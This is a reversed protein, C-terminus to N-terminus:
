VSRSVASGSVNQSPTATHCLISRGDPRDSGGCCSCCRDGSSHRSDQNLSLIGERLSSRDSVRHSEPFQCPPLSDRTSQGPGGSDARYSGRHDTDGTEVTSLRTGGRAHCSDSQTECVGAIRPFDPRRTGSRTHVTSTVTHHTTQLAESRERHRSLTARSGCPRRPPLWGDGEPEPQRDSTTQPSRRSVAPRHSTVSIVGTVSGCSVGSPRFGHYRRRAARDTPLGTPTVHCRSRSGISCVRREGRSYDVAGAM